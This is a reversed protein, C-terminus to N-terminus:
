VPLDNLIKPCEVSLLDRGEVKGDPFVTLERAVHVNDLLDPFLPVLVSLYLM